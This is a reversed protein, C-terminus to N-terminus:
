ECPKNGDMMNRYCAYWDTVLIEQGRKLTVSVKPPYKKSYASMKANPISLCIEDHVHNEVLDKELAGALVETSGPNERNWTARKNQTMPHGRDGYAEPFLNEVCAPCGGNQLSILHDLEYHNAADKFGYIQMTDRKIKSTVSTPPRVSETSWGKKCINKAINDQTVGPDEKGPTLDSIPYIQDDGVRSGSRHPQAREAKLEANTINRRLVWGAQLDNTTKVKVYGSRPYRSIVTVATGTPLAGVRKSSSSPGSRLNSDRSVVVTQAQVVTTFLCALMSIILFKKM